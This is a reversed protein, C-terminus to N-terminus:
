NGGVKPKLGKQVVHSSSHKEAQSPDPLRSHDCKHVSINLCVLIYSSITLYSLCLKM